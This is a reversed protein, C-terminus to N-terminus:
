KSLTRPGRFRECEWLRRGRPSWWWRPAGAAWSPEIFGGDGDSPGGPWIVEAAIVAHVEYPQFTFTAARGLAPVRWEREHFWDAQGPETRVAWSKVGPDLADWQRQRAYWVPGGGAELITEKRFVVGWAPYGRESFLYNLGAQTSETFCVPRSAATASLAFAVFGGVLCFQLSAPRLRCPAFEPPRGHTPNGPGARSTCSITGSIPTFNALRYAPAPRVL